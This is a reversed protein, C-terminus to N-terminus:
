TFAFNGYQQFGSGAVTITDGGNRNLTSANPSLSTIVPNVAHVQALSVFLSYTAVAIVTFGIIARQFMVRPRLVKKTRKTKRGSGIKTLRHTIRSPQTHKHMGLIGGGLTGKANTTSKGINHWKAKM